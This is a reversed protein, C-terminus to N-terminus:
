PIYEEFGGGFGGGERGWKEKEKQVGGRKKRVNVCVCM